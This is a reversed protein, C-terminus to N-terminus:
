RAAVGARIFTLFEGGLNTVASGQPFPDEPWRVMSFGRSFLDMMVCRVLALQGKAGPCLAAIADSYNHIGVGLRGPDNPHWLGRKYLVQQGEGLVGLVQIHTVTMTDLADLFLQQKDADRQAGGGISVLANRLYQRKEASTTTQAIRTARVVAAAFEANEALKAYSFTDDKARLEDVAGAIEKFWESLAKAQSPVIVLDFLPQVLPVVAAFSDRLGRTLKSSLSEEPYREKLTAFLKILDDPV